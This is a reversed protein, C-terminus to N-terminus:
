PKWKTDVTMGDWFVNFAKGTDCGYAFAKELRDGFKDQATHLKDPDLVFIAMRYRYKTTVETLDQGFKSECKASLESIVYNFLHPDKCVAYLLNKDSLPQWYTEEAPEVDLPQATRQAGRLQEDCTAIHNLVTAMSLVPPQQITPGTASLMSAIRREQQAQYLEMLQNDHRTFESSIKTAEDIGHSIVQSRFKGFKNNLWFVLMNCTVPDPCGFSAYGAMFTRSAKIFNLVASNYFCTGFRLLADLADVIEGITSAQAPQQIANSRSFNTMNIGFTTARMLTSPTVPSLHM